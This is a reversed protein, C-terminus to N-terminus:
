PQPHPRGLDPGPGPSPGPQPSPWPRPKGPNLDPGPNPKPLGPDPGSDLHPQGPDQCPRVLMAQLQEQNRSNLEEAERTADVARNLAERLDMLGAEHQALQEHARTALAQNEEWRGTLQGQVHALVPYSPTVGRSPEAGMQLGRLGCRWSGM